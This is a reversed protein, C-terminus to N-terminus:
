VLGNKCIQTRGQHKNLQRYIQLITGQNAKEMKENKEFLKFLTVNEQFSSFTLKSLIIQRFKRSNKM